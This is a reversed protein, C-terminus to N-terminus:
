GVYSRARYEEAKPVIKFFLFIGAHGHHLVSIWWDGIKFEYDRLLQSWENIKLRGDRRPAISNDSIIPMEGAQYDDM